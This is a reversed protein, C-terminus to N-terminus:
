NCGIFHVLLYLNVFMVDSTTTLNSSFLVHLKFEQLATGKISLPCRLMLTCEGYISQLMSLCELGLRISLAWEEVGEKNENWHFMAINLYYQRWKLVCYFCKVKKSFKWYLITTIHSSVAHNLNRHSAQEMNMKYIWTSYIYPFILSVCLWNGNLSFM